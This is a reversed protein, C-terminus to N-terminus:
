GPTAVLSTSKLRIQAAQRSVNFMAALANTLEQYEPSGAAVSTGLGSDTMQRLAARNFLRRPMLLAAMGINAQVERWDLRRRTSTVDAHEPTIDRHLCQVSEGHDSTLHNAGATQAFEPEYLYRHLYVHSAEHAITARWRGVTGIGADSDDRASTLAANIRVRPKQKSAFATMGLVDSPLDAYLDLECGLHGEVLLEIDFVPKVLTPHLDAKRLQEAAIQEIEDADYWIRQDGEPGPYWKM